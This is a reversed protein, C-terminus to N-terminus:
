SVCFGLAGGDGCSFLAFFLTGGGLFFSFFSGWGGKSTFSFKAICIDLSPVSSPGIRGLLGCPEDEQEHIGM